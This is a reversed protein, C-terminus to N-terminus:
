GAGCQGHMLGQGHRRLPGQRAHDQHADTGSEKETQEGYRRAMIRAVEGVEESLIAMNTLPSFYRVGVQRIWADVEESLESLPGAVTPGVVDSSPEVPGPLGKGAKRGKM